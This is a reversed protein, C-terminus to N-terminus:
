RKNDKLNLHAILFSIICVKFCLKITEADQKWWGLQIYRNVVNVWYHCELVTPALEMWVLNQMNHKGEDRNCMISHIFDRSSTPTITLSLDQVHNTHLVHRIYLFTEYYYEYEVHYRCCCTNRLNNIRVYWPKCKEFSRQGM